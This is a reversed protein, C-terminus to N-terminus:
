LNKLKKEIDIRMCIKIITEGFDNKDTYLLTEIDSKDLFPLYDNKFREQTAIATEKEKKANIRSTIDFVNNQKEPVVEPKVEEEREWLFKVILEAKGEAILKEAEVRKIPLSRMDFRMEKYYRNGTKKIFIM